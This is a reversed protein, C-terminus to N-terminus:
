ASTKQRLSKLIDLIADAHKIEFRASAILHQRLLYDALLETTSFHRTRVVALYVPEGGLWRPLFGRLVMGWPIPEDRWGAVKKDIPTVM